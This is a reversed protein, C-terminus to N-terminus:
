GLLLAPERGPHNSLSDNSLWLKVLCVSCKFPATDFGGMIKEIGFCPMGEDASLLSCADVSVPQHFPWRCYLYM